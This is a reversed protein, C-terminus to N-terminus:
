SGGGMEFVEGLAHRLWSLIRGQLGNNSHRADTQRRNAHLRVLGCAVSWEPGAVLEALGGLNHPVGLRVRQGFFEESIGALGDLRSGGGTLVIGARPCSELGQQRLPQLVEVLLDKARAEIIRAAFRAPIVQTGEGGLPPVEVARDFDEDTPGVGLEAKLREAAHSTTHLMTALDNTFSRGSVPTSGTALVAGDSFLIWETAGSGIDVLLCGLSREEDTMVAAAAALPEYYVHDVVVGARNVAQVLTEVHTKHTYLVYAHADLRTAPMGVPHIVGPQGDLVYESPIVDLVRYDPPQNFETCRALARDRDDATVTQQRDTIPVSSSAHLGVIPPGGVGIVAREVRIDAMAEAEEAAARVARSTEELKAVVGRPAGGHPAQGCGLVTLGDSTPTGIVVTVATSGVDIAVLPQQESM